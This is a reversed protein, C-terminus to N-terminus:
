YRATPLLSGNRFQQQGTRPRAAGAPLQHYVDVEEVKLTGYYYILMLRKTVNVSHFKIHVRRSNINSLSKVPPHQNIHPHLPCPMRQPQQQQQQQQQQHQQQTPSPSNRLGSHDSYISISNHSSLGSHRQNEVHSYFCNLEYILYAIPHCM